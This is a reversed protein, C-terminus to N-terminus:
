QEAAEAAPEEEDPFWGAARRAGMILENSQEESLELGPLLERLEDSALDALDDMTKVGGRGLLVLSQKDFIEIAALDDTVGLELREAELREDREQIFTQARRQLESAIDEDFGEISTLDELPVLAVDEVSTFGEAVLLHAIVEDVDLAEKFEESRLKMEAQRRESEEAETMIDIDWGTLQSALRM